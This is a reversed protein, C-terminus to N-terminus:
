QDPRDVGGGRGPDAATKEARMQPSQMSLGCRPHSCSLVAEWRRREGDRHCFPFRLMWLPAGLPRMVRSAVSCVVLGPERPPPEMTSPGVPLLNQILVEMDIFDSNGRPAPQAPRENGMLHQILLELESPIPAVKPPPVM